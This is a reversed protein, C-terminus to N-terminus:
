HLKLLRQANGGLINAKDAAPLDLDHVLQLGKPKLVTLPPADTGFLVHSAGVTEIACRVAPPHYSTCDLYMMRLYESPKTSILM